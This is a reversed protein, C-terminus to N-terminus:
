APLMNDSKKSKPIGIWRPTKNMYERYSNGFRECCQREEPIMLANRIPALLILALLIYVWSASAIGIGISLSWTGLYIPHRSISYIGTTNPKDVPTAIFALTALIIFVFGMLYVALGAYFWVTGIALPLFVSYLLLIAMIVRLLQSYMRELGAYSPSAWFAPSEKKILSLRKLLINFSGFILLYPVLFIWANWLGIEFEPVLSM